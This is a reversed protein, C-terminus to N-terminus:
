VLKARITAGNIVLRWRIKAPLAPPEPFTPPPLHQMAKISVQLHQHAEEFGKPIPRFNALQTVFKTLIENNERLNQELIASLGVYTQIEPQTLELEIMQKAQLAGVIRDHLDQYLNASASSTDSFTDMLSYRGANLAELASRKTNTFRTVNNGYFNKFVENRLQAFNSEARKQTHENHLTDWMTTVFAVLDMDSRPALLQKLMEITRRRSGSLRTETIPTLFLIRHVYNLRNERLWTKVMDIIEVESIKSDSFRPTDILHVPFESLYNVNVIRYANISQTYGSLQDKSISLQQSEGALSEIFSSKGAGTPGMILYIHPYPDKPMRGTVPEVSIDGTIGINRLKPLEM